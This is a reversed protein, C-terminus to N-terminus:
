QTRMVNNFGTKRAGLGAMNLTGIGCELTEQGQVTHDHTERRHVTVNLSRLSDHRGICRGLHLASASDKSSKATCVDKAM